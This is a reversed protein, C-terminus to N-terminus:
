ARLIREIKDTRDSPNVLASVIGDSGAYAGALKNVTSPASWYVSRMPVWSLKDLGFDKKTKAVERIFKARDERDRGIYGILFEVVPHQISATTKTHKKASDFIRCGSEYDVYQPMKGKFVFEEIATYLLSSHCVLEKTRFLVDGAQFQFSYYEVDDHKVIEVTAPGLELYANVNLIAWDKNELVLAGLGYVFTQVGIQVLGIERFRVPVILRIPAKTIVPQNPEDTLVSYVKDADRRGFM